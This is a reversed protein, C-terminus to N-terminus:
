CQIEDIHYLPANNINKLILRLYQTIIGLSFLIIGTSFLISVILSAYGQVAIKDIFHKYIFFCGVISNVFALTFGLYTVFKLPIETSYLIVKGTTSFLNGLKYRSKLISNPNNNVKVFSIKSTYWILFEDIFIFHRHNEPLRKALDAKILRFSSGKGKNKGELRAIKKYFYTFCKRSLSQKKIYEGYIVHSGSKKYEEILTLFQSPLVQLDDDMTLIIDGTSNEIGCLTASHQGFNKGLRIIKIQNIEDSRKVEKLIDWSDDNSFDDIYIIELDIKKALSEVIEKHLRFLEKGTNFVPIVLSYKTNTIL